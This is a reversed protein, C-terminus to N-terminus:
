TPQASLHQQIKQYISYLLIGERITSISRAKEAHHLAVFRWKEDFCPSGSSGFAARTVYQILGSENQISTVANSSLALKMKGGDPHQLINLGSRLQPVDTAFPTPQIDFRGKHSGDTRLLVFDLESTPSSAVIPDSASLKIITAQQAGTLDGFLLTVSSVSDPPAIGSNKPALVHYNTLILDQDILVGTGTGGTKGVNVLCVSASREIAQKLQGVDLFDPQQGFWGQLQTEEDEPGNWTIDPGLAFSLGARALPAEALFGDGNYLKGRIMLAAVFSAKDLGLRPLQPSLVSALTMFRRDNPNVGKQLAWDILNQADDEPVGDWGGQRQLKFPDPLDAEQILRRFYAESSKAGLAELALLQALANRDATTLTGSKSIPLPVEKAGPPIPLPRKVFGHIAALAVTGIGISGFGIILGNLIAGAMIVGFAVPYRFVAPLFSQHRLAEITQEDYNVKMRQRWAKEDINELLYRKAADFVLYLQYMVAFFILVTFGLVVISTWASPVNFGDRLAQYGSVHEQFFYNYCRIFDELWLHVITPHETTIYKSQLAMGFASGTGLIVCSFVITAINSLRDELEGKRLITRFEGAPNALDALFGSFISAYILIGLYVFLALGMYALAIASFVLTAAPHPVAFGPAPRVGNTVSDYNASITCWDVPQDSVTGWVPQLCGRVWQLVTIIIIFAILAPLVISFRKLHRKWALRLESETVPEGNAKIVIQREAFNKVTQVRTRVLVGFLFLYPPFLIFYIFPWHSWLFGVEKQTQKTVIGNNVRQIYPNLSHVDFGWSLFFLMVAIAACVILLAAPHYEMTLTELRESLGKRAPLEGDSDQPLGTAPPMGSVGGRDVLEGLAM